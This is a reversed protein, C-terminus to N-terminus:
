RAGTAWRNTAPDYVYVAAPAEDVPKGGVVLIRGNLVVTAPMALTVPLPAVERWRDDGTEYAFSGEMAFVYIADDVVAVAAFKAWLPVPPRARPKWRENEYVHHDDRLASPSGGFGGIVHVRGAVTAMVHLHDGPTFGPPPPAREVRGTAPDFVHHGAGEDPIGGLVHLRGGAVATAFHSRPLRADDVVVQWRDEAPDYREIASGVAHIRGGVVGSGFFARGVGMDATARWPGDPLVFAFSARTGRDVARREHAYGGFAHLTDGLREVRHGHRALVLRGASAPYPADRPTAADDAEGCPSALLWLGVILLGSARM